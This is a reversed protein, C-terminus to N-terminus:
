DDLHPHEFRLLDVMVDLSEKKHFKYAKPIDFKLEAVVEATCGPFERQAKEILYNRTSTKHLSYTVAANKMACDLFMWDAGANRTGFPPNMIVTDFKRFLHITLMITGAPIKRSKAQM